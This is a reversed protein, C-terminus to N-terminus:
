VPRRATHRIRQIVVEEDRVRYFVVYPYPSAVIRRQRPRETPQGALPHQALLNVIIQIRRGVRRAGQPNRQRIYGLVEDLQRLASATYRVKV